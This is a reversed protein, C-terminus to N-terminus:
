VMIQQSRYMFLKPNRVTTCHDIFSSNASHVSPLCTEQTQVKKLKKLISSYDDRIRIMRSKMEALERIVPNVLHCWVLLDASHLIASTEMIDSSSTNGTELKGHRMGEALHKIKVHFLKALRPLDNDRDLTAL